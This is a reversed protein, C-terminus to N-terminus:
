LAARRGLNEPYASRLRYSTTSYKLATSIPCTPGSARRSTQAATVTERSPFASQLAGGLVQFSASGRERLVTTMHRDIPREAQADRMVIISYRSCCTM